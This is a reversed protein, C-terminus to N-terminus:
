DPSANSLSRPRDALATYRQRDIMRKISIGIAMIPGIMISLKKAQTLGTYALNRSLLPYHLLFLPLIVVLYESGQSKHVTM